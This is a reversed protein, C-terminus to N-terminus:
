KGSPEAKRNEEAAAMADWKVGQGAPLESSEVPIANANEAAKKMENKKAAEEMRFRHRICELEVRNRHKQRETEVAMRLQHEMKMKEMNFNIIDGISSRICKIINATASITEPDVIDTYGIADALKSMIGEGTKVLSTLDDLSERFTSIAAVARGRSEDTSVDSVSSALEGGAEEVREKGESVSRSFEEFERRSNELMEEVSGIEYESLMADRSTLGLRGNRDVVDEGCANDAGVGM